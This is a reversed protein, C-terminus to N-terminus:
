QLRSERSRSSQWIAEKVSQPILMQDMDCRRWKGSEHRVSGREIL